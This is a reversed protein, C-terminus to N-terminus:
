LDTHLVLHSNEKVSKTRQLNKGDVAFTVNGKKEKSKKRYENNPHHIKKELEEKVSQPMIYNNQFIYLITFLCDTDKGGVKDAISDGMPLKLDVGRGTFKNMKLQKKRVESISPFLSNARGIKRDKPIIEEYINEENENKEELQGSLKILMAPSIFHSLIFILLCSKNDTNGM